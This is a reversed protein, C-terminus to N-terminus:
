VLLFVLVALASYVAVLAALAVYWGATKVPGRERAQGLLMSRSPSCYCDWDRALFELVEDLSMPELPGLRSMVVDGRVRQLGVPSSPGLRSLGFVGPVQPEVPVARGSVGARMAFVAALTYPGVGGGRFVEPAFYESAPWRMPLESAPVTYVVGDREWGVVDESAVEPSPVELEELEREPAVTV